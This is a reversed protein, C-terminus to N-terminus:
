EWELKPSAGGIHLIRDKCAASGERDGGCLKSFIHLDKVEEGRSRISGVGVAVISRSATRAWPVWAVWCDLHQREHKLNSNGEPRRSPSRFVGQVQDDLRLCLCYPSRGREFSLM